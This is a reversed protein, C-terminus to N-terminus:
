HPLAMAFAASILCWSTGWRDGILGWVLNMVAVSAILVGTFLGVGAGGIAFKETGFVMYFGAAMAGLQMTTRSILFRSYNRDRRLM